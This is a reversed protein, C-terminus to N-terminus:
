NALELIIAEVQSEKSVSLLRDYKFSRLLTKVYWQFTVNIRCTYSLERSM